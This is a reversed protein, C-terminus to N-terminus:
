FLDTNSKASRAPPGANRHTTKARVAAHLATEQMEREERGRRRLAMYRRRQRRPPRRLCVSRRRHRRSEGRKLHDEGKGRYGEGQGKGVSQLRKRGLRIHTPRSGTSRPPRGLRHYGTVVVDVVGRQLYGKGEGRDCGRCCRIKLMQKM